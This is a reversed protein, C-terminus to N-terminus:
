QFPAAESPAAEVELSMISEPNNNGSVSCDITKGERTQAEPALPALSASSPFITIPFTKPLREQSSDQAMLMTTANTTGWPMALAVTICQDNAVFHGVGNHHM